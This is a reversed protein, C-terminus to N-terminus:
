DIRKKLTLVNRNNRYEYRVEDMNKKVLYIGLGGIGREEATLTVDPDSSDLPNFPIGNDRFVIVAEGGSVSVSLEVKGTTEGYAYSAINVFVEEIALDVKMITKASVGHESLIKDAFATAADLNGVVADLVVTDTSGSEKLEFCVITLDDFRPVDGVFANFSKEVGRVLAEPNEERHERVANIVGDDGFMIEDTNIAESLGDTYLFLKDGKQLQIQTNKYSIDEFAGALLGHRTKLVEVEGKQRCIIPDNHGANAMTLTGTSLEIVGFWITAFMGASNNRCLRQNVFTLAAAPSPVVRAAESILINTVMMFLAAPVSKGSVDAIPVALHDEDILFFNYLDGGVEKAPTMSAYIDFDEREPFAPFVNPITNEQITKAISMEASIREREATVATLNDIYRLMDEEMTDISRILNSIEAYKSINGIKEGETNERAFRNTEESVIVIPDVIRKKLLRAAVIAALASFVLTSIVISIVYPMRGRSLESMPRQLCLIAVVEGETNKVPALTTIHPHQGDTPNTRYVTEYPVKQEYVARYKRRYEDNTTDRQHGLEWEKYNTNDVENDVANFVSVFRGYDSRDVVIVYVLSVEMKNCYADLLRKTRRYDNDEGSRLYDELKDGNVLTAATDAMHFTTQSYESKFSITFGIYGITSVVAGFIFLVLIITGIINVSMNTQLKRIINIPMNVQPQEAKKM